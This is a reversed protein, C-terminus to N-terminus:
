MLENMRLNLEKIKLESREVLGKESLLLAELEERAKALGAVVGNLRQSEQLQAQFETNLNQYEDIKESLQQQLSVIAEQNARQKHGNQKDHNQLMTLKIGMEMEERKTISLSENVRKLSFNLEANDKSLEIIQAELEKFRLNARDRDPTFMQNRDNLSECEIMLLELQMKQDKLETQKQQLEKRIKKNEERESELVSQVGTLLSKADLDQSHRSREGSGMKRASDARDEVEHARDSRNRNFREMEEMVYSYSEQLTEYDEEIKKRELSERGIDIELKRIKEQMTTRQHHDMGGEKLEMLQSELVCKQQIAKGLNNETVTLEHMLEVNKEKLAKIEDSYKEAEHLDRQYKSELSKFKVAQQNNDDKLQKVLSQNFAIMDDKVKLSINFKNDQDRLQNDLDENSKKLAEVQDLLV